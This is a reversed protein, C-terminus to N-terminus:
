KLPNRKKTERFSADMAYFEMLSFDNHELDRRASHPHSKKNNLLSYGFRRTRACFFDTVM